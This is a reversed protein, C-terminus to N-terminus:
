FGVLVKDPHHVIERLLAENEFFEDVDSRDPESASGRLVDKALSLSFENAAGYGIFLYSPFGAPVQSWALPLTWCGNCFANDGPGYPLVAPTGEGSAWHAEGDHVGRVPGGASHKVVSKLEDFTFVGDALPGSALMRPPRGTAVIGDRVGTSQDRLIARAELIIAAGVGAAYPSAASTCCTFPSPGVGRVEKNDATLGKYGDSVLHAPAGSWHAVKGNDHAGVWISGKVLTAALESPWTTWGLFFGAGNGSAFYVLHKAAAEELNEKIRTPGGCLFGEIDNDCVFDLAWITPEPVIFGWSNTQVDIWGRDAAWKVSLDGLGEISVIRCQPCQSTAEGAMRSATMTGHGHDDLIPYDPCAQQVLQPAPELGPEFPCYVGGLGMRTAAIIRTGPIWFIKGALEERGEPTAWKALLGEWISRDAEFAAEFSPADLTLNLAEADEPYGPIYRSPHVHAVRSTDRFNEHYPNIGSDIHAIVAQPEPPAASTREASPIGSALLVVTLAAFFVKLGM